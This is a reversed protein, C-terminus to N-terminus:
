KIEVLSNNGFETSVHRPNDPDNVWTGDVYFKYEYRGKKLPVFRQWIGTGAVNEMPLRGIEWNNFDAVVYVQSAKPAYYTFLVGDKTIVPRRLAGEGHVKKAPRKASLIERALARYDRAGSSAPDYALIHKGYSSAEKLRVNFNIVTKFVHGRMHKALDELTERAIRTRRDFMTALANVGVPVSRNRNVVDITELLRALGHLAFLGSEMPILVDTCAYLANFTLIGINPPCDILVFDYDGDFTGLVDKLALERRERGLLVPEAASLMVDSPLLDLGEELNVLVDRGKIARGTDTLLDYVSLRYDGPNVGFALTAHAQPDLDVVLVRKGSQALAAGLNVATTTKGCGGKQNIIAVVRM